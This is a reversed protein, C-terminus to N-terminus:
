RLVLSASGSSAAQAGHSVGREVEPVPMMAPSVRSLAAASHASSSQVARFRLEGFPRFRASCAAMTVSTADNAISRPKTTSSHTIPWRQTSPGPSHSGQYMPLLPLHATSPSSHLEIKMPMRVRSHQGREHRTLQAGRAFGFAGTMM